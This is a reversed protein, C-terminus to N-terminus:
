MPSRTMAKWVVCGKEVVLFSSFMGHGTESQGSIDQDPRRQGADNHSYEANAHEAIHADGFAVASVQDSATAMGYRGRCPSNRSPANCIGLAGWSFGTM